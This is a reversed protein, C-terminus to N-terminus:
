ARCEVLRLPRLGRATRQQLSRRRLRCLKAATVAASLTAENAAIAPTSTAGAASIVIGGANAAPLTSAWYARNGHM